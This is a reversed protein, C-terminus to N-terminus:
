LTLLVKENGDISGKKTELHFTKVNVFVKLHNLYIDFAEAKMFTIIFIFHWQKKGSSIGKPEITHRACCKAIRQTLQAV